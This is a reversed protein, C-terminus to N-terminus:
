LPDLFWDIHNKKSSILGKDFPNEDETIVEEPAVQAM